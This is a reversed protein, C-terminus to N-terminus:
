GHILFHNRDVVETPSTTKRPLRFYVVHRNLGQVRHKSMAHELRHDMLVVTGAPGHIRVATGLEERPHIGAIVKDLELPRLLNDFREQTARHTGPWVLLNGADGASPVDVLFVGLLLGYWHLGDHGGDVHRNPTDSGYGHVLTSLQCGGRQYVPDKLIQDLTEQLLGVHPLSNVQFGGTDFWGNQEQRGKQWQSEAKQFTNAVWDKLEESLDLIAYGNQVFQTAHQNM